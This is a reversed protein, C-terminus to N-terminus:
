RKKINKVFIKISQATDQIFFEDNLDIGLKGIIELINMKRFTTSNINDNLNVLDNIDCYYTAYFAMMTGFIYRYNEKFVESLRYALEYINFSKEYKIEMRYKHEIKEFLQLLYQCDDDFQETTIDYFYSKILNPSLNDINGFNAFSTIVDSYDQYNAIQLKLNRLRFYTDLEEIVIGRDILYNMAYIEFYISIFETLLYLNNNIAETNHNIYHFFEHIILIVDTYNFQRKINILREQHMYHSFEYENNYGFDLKGSEILNDYDNLYNQNIKEIIERALLFVDDFTLNNKVVKNDISLDKLEYMLESCSSDILDCNKILFEDDYQLINFSLNLYENLKKYDENTM